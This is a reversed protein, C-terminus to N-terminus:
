TLSPTVTHRVPPRASLSVSLLLRELQTSDLPKSLYHNMGAEFCRAQDEPLAAATLAVIPLTAWRGGRARIARTAQYGDMQPMHCDMLVVDYVKTAVLTVARLGDGAVEVRCGIRELFATAVRQNVLNDEALLVSLGLRAFGPNFEVHAPVPDVCEGLRIRRLAAYIHDRHTPRILTHWQADPTVLLERQDPWVLVLVRRQERASLRLLSDRLSILEDNEQACIAIMAGDPGLELFQRMASATDLSLLPMQGYSRLFGRWVQHRAQTSDAIVVTGGLADFGERNAEAAQDVELPISCCFASGLGAASEVKMTGGMLHVLSRTIALGLGSGGFRRSASNDLQQFKQFLLAQKDAPIGVGSDEIRITVMTHCVGVVLRVYGTETFKVSNSVLNLVIQRLRGGDAIFHRPLEPAYDIILELKKERAAFGMLDLVDELVRGLDVPETQIEVMEAELKSFDLIDNIVRLLAESSDRITAAMSHQRPDLPTDLLLETMGKVGNMPTRIEHSMKALFEGKAKNAEEAKQRARELTAEIRKRQTVDRGIAQVTLPKAGSGQLIRSNFEITVIEGGSTTLDRETHLQSEGSAAAHALYLTWDGPTAQPLLLTFDNGALEQPSYGTLETVARNAFLIRGDADFTFILDTANEFLEQFSSKIQREQELSQEVLATQTRVRRRLLLIWFLAVVCSIILGGALRITRDWNWFPPAALVRLDQPSRLQLRFWRSNTDGTLNSTLFAVGTVAFRTGPQFDIKGPPTVLNAQFEREGYQFRMWVGRNADPSTSVLTGELTVVRGDLLRNVVELPTTRLPVVPDASATDASAMPTMVADTVSPTLGGLKAYGKVAVAMGVPLRQPSASEVVIGGTADQVVHVRDEQSLTIRGVFHVATTRTRNSDFTLVRGIVTVPVPQDPQGAVLGVSDASPTMLFADTMQGVSNFVSSAVGTIRLSRGIWRRAQAPDVFDMRVRIVQGQQDLRLHTKGERFDVSRLFGELQVRACHFNGLLLKPVTTLVPPPLAQRGTVTVEAAVIVPAYGGPEVHGRVRVQDGPKLPTTVNRVYIGVPGDQLFFFVKPEGVYTVVGATAVKAKNRAEDQSIQKIHALPVWVPLAEPQAVALMTLVMVLGTQFAIARIM